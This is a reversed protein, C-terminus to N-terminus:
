RLEFNWTTWQNCVVNIPQACSTVACDDVSPDSCSAGARVGTRDVVEVRIRVHEGVGFLSFDPAYMKDTTPIDRWTPDTERWLSWYFTLQGQGQQVAGLSDIQDKVDVVSLSDFPVPDKPDVVYSGAQPYVSLCPPGEPTVTLATTIAPTTSAGNTVALSVTYSSGSRPMGFDPWLCVKTKWDTAQYDMTGMSMPKCSTGDWETFVPMLSGPPPTVTWHYTLVDPGPCNPGRDPVPGDPNTAMTSLSMPIGWGAPFKGCSDPGTGLMIAASMPLSPAGDVIPVMVVQADSVAAQQDVVTTTVRFIGARYFTVDFGDSAEAVDYDCKEIPQPQGDAFDVTHQYLSVKDGNDVDSMKVAFHVTSGRYNTPALSPTVTCSPKHNLDGLYLCGASCLLTAVLLRQM